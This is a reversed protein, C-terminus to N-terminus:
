DPLQHGGKEALQEGKHVAYGVGSLSIKLRGSLDALSYGLERVAWFCFLARADSRRKIRSKIFIEEPDIAYIAAARNAIAQLDIHRNRLETARELTADAKKLTKLVFDTDGLIRQDGKIREMGRLRLKKVAAWGGTSRVMGGGTLEPRRGQAIGSNIYSQYRRRAQGRTNGFFGLVYSVNQWDCTKHGTLPGHGSYPYHQLGKLDAVRKARIPNLHIYRVLEKFYADEQCIISKYRNQFLQGHRKHRRNFGLAYGTLLRRMLGAIGSPGSRLLFHAHNSMLVWAYCTTQTGPILTALREIFDAYDYRNRFINRREIGRIIIHQLLGPTDIRALRPM